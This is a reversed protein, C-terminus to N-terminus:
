RADAGDRGAGPNGLAGIDKITGIYTIDGNVHLGAVDLVAQEQGSVIFRIAGSKQDFEIRTAEDAARSRQATTAAIAIISVSLLALLVINFRM